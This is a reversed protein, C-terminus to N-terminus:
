SQSFYEHSVCMSLAGLRCQYKKINKFLKLIVKSLKCVLSWTIRGYLFFKLQIHQYSIKWQYHTLLCCLGFQIVLHFKNFVFNTMTYVFHFYDQSTQGQKYQDERNRKLLQNICYENEQGVETLRLDMARITSNEGMGEQLSKGGDQSGCDFTPFVNLDCYPALAFDKQIIIRKQTVSWRGM